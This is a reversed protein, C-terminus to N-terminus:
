STSYSSLMILRRLIKGEEPKRSSKTKRKRRINCLVTCCYSCYQVHHDDLLARGLECCITTATTTMWEKHLCCHIAQTCFSPMESLHLCHVFVLVKLALAASAPKLTAKRPVAEATYRKVQRRQQGQRRRATNAATTTWASFSINSYLVCCM